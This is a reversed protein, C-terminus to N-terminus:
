WDDSLRIFPKYKPWICNLFIKNYMILEYIKKGNILIDYVTKDKVISRDKKLSLNILTLSLEKEYFKLM